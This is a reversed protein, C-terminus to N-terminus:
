PRLHRVRPGGLTAVVEGAGNLLSLAADSGLRAATAVRGKADFLVLDIGASDAQLVAQRKGGAVLEIRDARIVPDRPRMALAGFALAACLAALGARRIRLYQAELRALRAATEAPPASPAPMPVEM